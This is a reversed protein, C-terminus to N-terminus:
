NFEQRMGQLRLRTTVMIQTSSLLAKAGALTECHMFFHLKGNLIEGTFTVLDATKKKLLTLQLWNQLHYRFDGFFECTNTVVKLVSFLYIAM